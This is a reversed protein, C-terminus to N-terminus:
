PALVWFSRSRRVQGQGDRAEVMVVAPRGAPLGTLELRFRGDAGARGTVVGRPQLPYAGGLIEAPHGEVWYGTVEGGPQWRGTLTLREGAALVLEAAPLDVTLPPEIGAVMREAVFQRLAQAMEPEQDLRPYSQRAFSLPDFRAAAVPRPAFLYVMDEAFNEEPWADHGLTAPAFEYGGRIRLYEQWLPSRPSPADLLVMHLHHGLEHIVTGALGTPDQLHLPDLPLILEMEGAKHKGLYQDYSGPAVWIMHDPLFDAAGWTPGRHAAALLPAPISSEAVVQAIFAAYAPGLTELVAPPLPRLGVSDPLLYAAQIQAPGAAPLDPRRGERRDMEMLLLLRARIAGALAWAKGTTAPPVVALGGAPPRYAEAAVAGAAAVLADLEQRITQRLGPPAPSLALYGLVRQRDRRVWEDFPLEEGHLVALRATTKLAGPVQRPATVRVSWAERPGVLDAQWLSANGARDRAEVWRVYVQGSPGPDFPAYAIGEWRGAGPNWRLSVENWWGPDPRATPALAARVSRVGALDDTVVAAILLPQGPAAEEPSVTVQLVAPPTLDVPGPGEVELRRGVGPGRDVAFVQRLNDVLFVREVTWAGPEAFAPLLGTGTLVEGRSDGLLRVEVEQGGPSRLVVVADRVGAPPPLVRATIPFPEEAAVRAPLTLDLLTPAGNDRGAAGPEGPDVVAVPDALANPRANRLGAVARLGAGPLAALALGAILALIRRRWM